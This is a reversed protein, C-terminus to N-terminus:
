IITKYMCQLIIQLYEHNQRIKTLIQIYSYTFFVGIKIVPLIKLNERSIFYKFDNSSSDNDNRQLKERKRCIEYFNSSYVSIFFFQSYPVNPSFTLYKCHNTKSNCSTKRLFERKGKIKKQNKGISKFVIPFNLFHGRVEGICWNSESVFRSGGICEDSWESDIYTYFIFKHILKYVDSDDVTFTYISNIRIEKFYSKLWLKINNIYLENLQMNNTLCM